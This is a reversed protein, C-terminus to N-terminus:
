ALMESLQSLEALEDLDALKLQKAQEALEASSSWVQFLHAPTDRSFSSSLQCSLKARKASCLQLEPQCLQDKGSSIAFLNQSM